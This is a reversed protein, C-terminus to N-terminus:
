LSRRCAIGSSATTRAWISQAFCISTTDANIDMAANQIARFAGFGENMAGGTSVQLAKTNLVDADSRQLPVYFQSRQQEMALQRARKKAPKGDKVAVAALKAKAEKSSFDFTGAETKVAGDDSEQEDSAKVSEAIRADRKRKKERLSEPIAVASEKPRWSSVQAALASASSEVKSEMDALWPHVPILRRGGNEDRLMAKARGVSERSAVSRTRIYLGHANKASHRLKDLDVDDVTKKLLEVEEDLPAKPVDGFLFSSEIAVAISKWASSDSDPKEDEDLGCSGPALKVGRGLFLHVDLMYPAEDASVLSIARGPRGARGARGVRHVFLKPTAPMDYNVVNDLEPLDIGRAAVDTVVLVKSVGKRFRAVAEVRAGQDMNGHVPDVPASLVKRLLAVIYEVCRHTAAFVIATGEADLVRRLTM